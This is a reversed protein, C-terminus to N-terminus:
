ANAAEAILQHEHAFLALGARSAVGVKAYIHQVHHEATRRSIVLRRAIESEVVERLGREVGPGLGVRKATTGAVECSGTDFRRGFERGREVAYQEVRSRQAASMGRTLEPLLTGAIDATEAVYTRAVTSMLVRDDGIAVASEHSLASCGVHVLLATYFTDSVEDEALGQQRALATAILCSRM